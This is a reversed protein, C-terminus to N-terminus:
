EEVSADEGKMWRDLELRDFRVASGIRRPNLEGRGRARHLSWRSMGTYLEAEKTSLYRPEITTASM